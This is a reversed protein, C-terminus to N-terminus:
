RGRGGGGRARLGGGGRPRGMNRAAQRNAGSMSSRRQQLQSRRQARQNPTSDLQTRVQNRQESSLRKRDYRNDYGRSGYYGYDYGYAPYGYSGYVAYSSSVGTDTAFGVCGSLLIMSSFLLASKLWRSIQTKM